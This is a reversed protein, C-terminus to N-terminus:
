VDNGTTSDTDELLSRLKCLGRRLLGAIAPQTRGLNEATEALSLGHLHHLEIAERQADPLEGLAWALHCLQEGKMVHQSPSSQVAQLWSELHTCSQNLSEQVSQERAVNRKQRGLARFADALNCSLMRKLWSALEADTSGRFEDLQRNADLLTQQVVDSADFKARYQPGIQTRALLTLYHRFRELSTASIDSREPMADAEAFRPSQAQRERSFAPLPVVFRIPGELSTQAMDRVSAM